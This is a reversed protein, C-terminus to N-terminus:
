GKKRKMLDRITTRTTKKVEEEVEVAQNKAKDVFANVQAELDKYLKRLKEKEEDSLQRFKLGKNSNNKQFVEKVHLSVLTKSIEQIKENLDAM